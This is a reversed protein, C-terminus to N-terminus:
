EKGKEWKMVCSLGYVLEAQKRAEVAILNVHCKEEERLRFGVGRWDNYRIEEPTCCVKKLFAKIKKNLFTNIDRYEYDDKYLGFLRQVYYWIAQRLPTTDLDSRYSHFLSYDTFDRIESFERDLVEGIDPLYNNVMIVGQDEWCYDQLKFVSYESSNVSFDTYHMEVDPDLFKSFDEAPPPNFSLTRPTSANSFFEQPFSYTAVDTEDTFTEEDVNDFGPVRPFSYSGDSSVSGYNIQEREEREERNRLNLRRILQSTHNIELDNRERITHSPIPIPDSAIVSETTTSVTDSEEPQEELTVGLGSLVEAPINESNLVGISSGSEEIPSNPTFPCNGGASDYEPVIGCGLVYSSLSHFTSMILIVHVIEAISWQEQPNQSRKVLAGIHSPGLRWPQNALITNLTALNRIKAPVRHLGQLWDINGGYMLFDNTLISVIYQCKFQSAAMIGIYFRWSLPVPGNNPDRIIVDYSEQYREMFSPFYALIRYFHSLRASKIFTDIMLKRVLDDPQRGIPLSPPSTPYLPTAPTLPQQIVRPIEESFSSSNSSSSSSSTSYGSPTISRPTSETLTSNTYEIPWELTIIDQPAIFFSPSPNIPSPVPVNMQRLRKLCRNFSNRVDSFPCDISMRLMALILLRLYEKREEESKEIDDPSNEDASNRRSHDSAGDPFGNRQFEMQNVYGFNESDVGENAHSHHINPSPAYSSASASGSGDTFLPSNFPSLSSLPTVLVNNLPSSVGSVNERDGSASIVTGATESPYSEKALNKLLQTIRDSANAREKPDTTLLGNFLAVRTRFERFARARSELTSPPAFDSNNEVPQQQESTTM